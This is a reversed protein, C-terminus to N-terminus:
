VNKLIEQGFIKKWEEGAEEVNDAREYNCAKIARNYASNVKTEWDDGLNIKKLTSPVIVDSNTKTKLYKFFDRFLWDYYFYSKLRWESQNLFETMLLELLFSKIPVQCYLKWCKAM